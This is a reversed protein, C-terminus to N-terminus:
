HRPQQATNMSPIIPAMASIMTASIRNRDPPAGINLDDMTINELGYVPVKQDLLSQVRLNYETTRLQNINKAQQETSNPELKYKANVEKLVAGQETQFATLPGQLAVMDRAMASLLPTSKVYPCTERPTAPEGPKPPSPMPPPKVCQDPTGNDLANLGNSLAQIQGMTLTVPAQAAAPTAMLLAIAIKPLYKRM